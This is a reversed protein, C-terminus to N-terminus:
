QFFEKRNFFLCVLIIVLPLVVHYKINLGILGLYYSAIGIVAIGLAIGIIFRELFSLKDHWYYMVAYGPLAFMWFLAFVTRLIIILNEKYFLIKFIVLGTIFLIGIYKLENVLNKRNLVIM